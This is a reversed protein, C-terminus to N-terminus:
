ARRRRIFGFLGLLGTGFVLLSGPEPIYTTFHWVDGAATLDANKANVKWYYTTGGLLPVSDPDWLLVTEALDAAVKVSVDGAAVKAQDTSFFVDFFSDYNGKTWTLNNAAGLLAIGTSGNGPGTNTVKIPTAADFKVSHVYLSGSTNQNDNTILVKSQATNHANFKYTGLGNWIAKNAAVTQDVYATATAGGSYTIVHKVNNKASTNSGFAEGVTYYATYPLDIAFTGTRLGVVPTNSSIYTGYCDPTGPATPIGSSNVTVTMTFWSNLEVTADKDGVPRASYIGSWASAAVSFSLAILVIASVFM